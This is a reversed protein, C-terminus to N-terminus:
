AEETGNVGQMEKLMELVAESVTGSGSTSASQQTDGAGDAGPIASL